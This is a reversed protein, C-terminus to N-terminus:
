WDKLCRVRLGNAKDMSYMYSTGNYNSFYSADTSSYNIMWYMSTYSSSNWSYGTYPYPGYGYYYNKNLYDSSNLLDLGSNGGSLLRNFVSTNSFNNVTTTDQFGHSLYRNLNTFETASPIHWGTPCIGQIFGLDKQNLFIGSNQLRSDNKV